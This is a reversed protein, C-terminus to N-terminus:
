KEGKEKEFDKFFNILKQGKETLTYESIKQKGKFVELKTILNFNVLDKMRRSLTNDDSKLLNKIDKYRMPDYNLYQLIKITHKKGLLNTIDKLTKFVEIKYVEPTLLKAKGEKM